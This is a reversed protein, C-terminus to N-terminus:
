YHKKILSLCGNIGAYTFRIRQNKCAFSHVCTIFTHRFTQEIFFINKGIRKRNENTYTKRRYVRRHMCLSMCTGIMFVM